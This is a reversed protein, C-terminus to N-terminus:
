ADAFDGRSRILPCSSGAAEALCIAPQQEGRRAAGQFIYYPELAATSTGCEALRSAHHSCGGRYLCLQVLKPLLCHM